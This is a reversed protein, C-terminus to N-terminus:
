TVLEGLDFETGEGDAVTVLGLVKGHMRGRGAVYTDTGFMPVVGAVDVRMDIVRTVPASINYQWADFPMWPQGTRMRFRGHFRARFSWDRPRGIVGMFRLYRRAPEPLVAVDAETVPSVDVPRSPLDLRAIHNLFRGRARFGLVTDRINV